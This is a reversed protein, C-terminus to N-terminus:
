AGQWEESIETGYGVSRMMMIGCTATDDEVSRDDKVLLKVEELYKTSKDLGSSSTKFGINKYRYNTKYRHVEQWAIYYTDQLEVKAGEDGTTRKYGALAFLWIEFANPGCFRRSLLVSAAILIM